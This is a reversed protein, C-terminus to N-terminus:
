IQAHPGPSRTFRAHVLSVHVGPGALPVKLRGPLDVALNGAWIPSFSDESHGISASGSFPSPPGLTATRLGHDFTFADAPAKGEITRAIKVGDHRERLSVSYFAPTKPRNKNVQFGLVRGGAFSTARLRAGPLGPNGTEEGSGGGHCGFRPFPFPSLSARAQDARVYGDEGHFELAGEYYGPEFPLKLKGCLRVTKEHGSPHLTADITGLRGLDAFVKTATVQAPASYVASERKRSVLVTVQGRGDARHSYASVFISYGNSGELSFGTAVGESSYSAGFAGASAPVLASLLAVLSLWIISRRRM